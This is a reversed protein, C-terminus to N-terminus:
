SESIQNSKKRRRLSPRVKLNARHNYALLLTQGAWVGLLVPDGFWLLLAILMGVLALMLAWASPTILLTFVILLSLSILPM